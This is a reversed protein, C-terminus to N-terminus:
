TIRCPQANPSRRSPPVSIWAATCWRRISRCSRSRGGRRSSWPSSRSAARPLGSSRTRRARGPSGLRAAASSLNVIAGGQGGHRKSMRKVAERACLFSGIVNVAFMRQLREVPMDEVRSRLDVVGANNVLATIRRGLSLETQRFLRIVDDEHSVDAAVAIGGIEKALKEAAPRDSRYNVCVAYGRQAGLRATAAGIGRSGGTVIM